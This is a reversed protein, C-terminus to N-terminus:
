LRNVIRAIAGIALQPQLQSAEDIFIVDFQFKSNRLFQAVSYPSMMFCPRWISLLM